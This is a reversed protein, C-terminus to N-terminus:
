PIVTVIMIGPLKMTRLPATIITKKQSVLAERVQAPCLGSVGDDVDAGRIQVISSQEPETHAPSQM